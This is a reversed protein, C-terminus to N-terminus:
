SKPSCMRCVGYPRGSGSRFERVIDGQIRACASMVVQVLGYLGQIMHKAFAEYEDRRFRAVLEARLGMVMANNFVLREDQPFSTIRDLIHRADADQLYRAQDGMVRRLVDEFVVEVHEKEMVLKGEFFAAYIDAHKRVRATITTRDLHVVKVQQAFRDTVFGKANGWNIEDFAAYNRLVKVAEPGLLEETWGRPWTDVLKAAPETLGGPCWLEYGITTADIITPDLHAHFALKLLERVLLPRTIRDRYNKCQVIRKLRGTDDYILVDRGREGSGQMLRVRHGRDDLDACQVRYTLVEFRRDEIQEFPLADGGPDVPKPEPVTGTVEGPDFADEYDAFSM